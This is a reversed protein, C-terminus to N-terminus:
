RASKRGGEFFYGIVNGVVSGIAAAIEPPVTVHTFAGLAWVLIPGASAGGLTGVTTSNSPMLRPRLAGNEPANTDDSM